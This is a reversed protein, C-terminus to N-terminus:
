FAHTLAFTAGRSSVTVSPVVPLSAVPLRERPRAVLYLGYGTYTLFQASGYVTVAIGPWLFDKNGHAAKYFFYSSLSTFATAVVGLGITPLVPNDACTPRGRRPRDVGWRCEVFREAPAPAPEARPPEPAARSAEGGRAETGCALTTEQRLVVAGTALDVVEYALHVSARETTGLTWGGPAPSVSVSATGARLAYHEPTLLVRTGHLLDDLYPQVGITCHVASGGEPGGSAVVTATTTVALSLTRPAPVHFRADFLAARHVLVLATESTAPDCAGMGFAQATAEDPALRYRACPVREGGSLVQLHLVRGESGLDRRLADLADNWAGLGRVRLAPEDARAIAAASLVGWSTGLAFLMGRALARRGPM